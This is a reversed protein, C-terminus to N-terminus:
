FYDAIKWHNKVALIGIIAAVIAGLPFLLPIIDNM